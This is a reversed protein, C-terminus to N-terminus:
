RFRWALATGLGGSIPAFRYEDSGDILLSSRAFTALVEAYARWSLSPGLPLEAGARVGAGWWPAYATNHVLATSTAGLAGARAIACGFIRGLHACPVIAGAFLWSTVRQSHLDSAGTTPLDARAELEVSWTRGSVGASLTGGGAVNPADGVSAVAGLAASFDLPPGSAVPAAARERPREVLAPAPDLSPDAAAEVKPAPKPVPAPAFGTVSAPDIALSITLGLADIVATCDTGRVALDRAGELSNKDDVLKVTASFTDGRRTIEAFLTERAWGFFPDYGLRTGVAARLADEQPCGEAGPGRVYVLHVSAGAFAPTAGLALAIFAAGAVCVMEGRRTAMSVVM